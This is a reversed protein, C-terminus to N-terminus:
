QVLGTMVAVPISINGVMVALAVVGAAIVWVARLRRGTAGLDQAATWIGHSLHLALVVMATVYFMAAWPREFSAVLNAYAAGHEFVTTAAPEAGVTLDLVHFVIFLLLVVGSVLMTRAGFSGVPLGRRRFSGRAKRGRSWLLLGCGIHLVLAVVLVVRLMWLVGEYPVLPELLTRLWHAYHDFGTAGLYVKLNGVMHIFVFAAFLLGTVAMVVKAWFTSVPLRKRPAITAERSAIVM